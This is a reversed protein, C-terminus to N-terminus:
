RRILSTKMAVNVVCDSCFVVNLNWQRHETFDIRESSYSLRKVLCGVARGFCRGRADESGTVVKVVLM